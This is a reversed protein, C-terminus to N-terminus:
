AKTQALWAALPEYLVRRAKSGAVMGIHGADVSLIEAYPLQAALPLASAPPVITDAKPVIVLAPVDISAPAVARGGSCWAGTMTRNAIYWDDLCELAVPGALPVGDNLWHELEIFARARASAPALMAFDRFKRATAGPDLGSFMAQIVDVPLVSVAAILQRLVPMSAALLYTAAAPMAHFDWPTALLALKSIKRPARHAVALALLGGMCYGVIMPARGTRAAVADRIRVLRDTYDDISFLTEEPGPAEWDVLYTDLGSGQLFRLLSREAHLDLIYARNILSPILVVPPGDSAAHVVRTTGESWVEPLPTLPVPKTAANFRDVGAAFGSLRREIEKGVAVRFTEPDVKQLSEQLVKARQSLSAKWGISGNKLSPLAYLSAALTLNQVALHLALPRPALTTGASAKVMAQMAAPVPALGM